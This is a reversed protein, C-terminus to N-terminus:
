GDAAPQQLRQEEWEAMSSPVHFWEDASVPESSVHGESTGEAHGACISIGVQVLRRWQCNQWISPERFRMLGNLHGSTLMNAM